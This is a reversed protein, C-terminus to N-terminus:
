SSSRKARGRAVEFGKECKLRQKNPQLDQQVGRGDSEAERPIKETGCEGPGSAASEKQPDKNDMLSPEYHQRIKQNDVYAKVVRWNLTASRKRSGDTQVKPTEQAFGFAALGLLSCGMVSSLSFMKFVTFM